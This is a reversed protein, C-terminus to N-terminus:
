TSKGRKGERSRRELERQVLSTLELALRRAEPGAVSLTISIAVGEDSDRGGREKRVELEENRPGEIHFPLRWRM